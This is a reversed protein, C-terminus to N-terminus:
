GQVRRQLHLCDEGADLWAKGHHDAGWPCAFRVNGDLNHIDEVVGVGVLSGEEDGMGVLGQVVQKGLDHLSVDRRAVEEAESLSLPHPRGAKGGRVISRETGRGGKVSHAVSARLGGKSREKRKGGSSGEQLGFGEQVAATSVYETEARGEEMGTATDKGEYRSRGRRRGGM